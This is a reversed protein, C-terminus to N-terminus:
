KSHRKQKLYLELKANKPMYLPHRPAGQTTRGLCYMDRDIAACVAAVRGVDCKAGWAAVATDVSRSWSRLLRDNDPGVPDSVTLLTRPDTARYAYANVMVIGTYGWAKAFNVCRRITPDDVTEDATSPNLGIFMVIRRQSQLDHTRWLAYRYKRCDSFEAGKDSDKM